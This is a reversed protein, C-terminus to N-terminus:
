EILDPSGTFLDDVMRRMLSLQKPSPQWTRRRGQRAISMAFSRQWESEASRLVAPWLALLEDLSRAPLTPFTERKM